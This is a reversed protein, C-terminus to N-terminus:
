KSANQETKCGYEQPINRSVKEGVIDKDQKPTM